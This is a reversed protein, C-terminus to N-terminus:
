AAAVKGHATLIEADSADIRNDRREFVGGLEDPYLLMALRSYYGVHHDNLRWPDDSRLEISSHWRLREWILRAGFRERGAAKAQRAFRLFMEFVQPNDRHFASWATFRQRHTEFLTPQTM